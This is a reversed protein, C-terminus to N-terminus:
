SRYRVKILTALVGYVVSILFFLLFTFAMYWSEVGIDQNIDAHMIDDLFSCDGLM